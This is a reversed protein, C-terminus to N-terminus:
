RPAILEGPAIIPGPAAIIPRPPLFRGPAAHREPRAFAALAVVRVRALRHGCLLGAGLDRTPRSGAPWTRLPGAVPGRLRSGCRSAVVEPGPDAAFEPSVLV